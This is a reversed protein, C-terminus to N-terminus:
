SKVASIVYGVDLIPHLRMTPQPIIHQQKKWLSRKHSLILRESQMLEGSDSLGMSSTSYLPSFIERVVKSKTRSNSFFMM